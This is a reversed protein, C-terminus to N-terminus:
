EDTAPSESRDQLQELAWAATLALGGDNPGDGARRAARLLPIAERYGAPGMAAAMMARAGASPEIAFASMLAPGANPACEPGHAMLVKGLADAAAARVDADPDSLARLLPIAADREQRFGLIDAILRRTFPVQATALAEVLTTLLAEAELQRM